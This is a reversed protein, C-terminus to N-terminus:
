PLALNHLSPTSSPFLSSILPAQTLGYCRPRYITYTYTTPTKFMHAHTYILSNVVSVYRSVVDVCRSM